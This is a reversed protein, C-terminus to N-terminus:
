AARMAKLEAILDSRKVEREERTETNRLQRRALASRHSPHAPTFLCFVSLLHTHTHPPPPPLPRSLNSSLLDFM